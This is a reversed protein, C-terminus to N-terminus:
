GEDKNTLTIDKVNTNIYFVVDTLLDGIYNSESKIVLNDPFKYLIEEASLKNLNEDFVAIKVDHFKNLAGYITMGTFENEKKAM